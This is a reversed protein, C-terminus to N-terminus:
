GSGPAFGSLAGQYRHTGAAIVARLDRPKGFSSVPSPRGTGQQRRACGAAKQFRHEPFDHGTGPMQSISRNDCYVSQRSKDVSRRRRKRLKPLFFLKKQRFSFIKPCFSISKAHFIQSRCCRRSSPTPLARFAGAGNRPVPAKTDLHHNLIAYPATGSREPDGPLPPCARSFRSADGAAKGALGHQVM